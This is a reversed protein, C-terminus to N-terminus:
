FCNVYHLASCLLATPPLELNEVAEGREGSDPDVPFVKLASVYEVGPVSQIQSYLESVFLDRGFPWGEGDSGGHLPHIYGHLKEEVARQVEDATEGRRVKISTEVSCWVYDAESVLLASALLRRDDLYERVQELLEQSVSLDNLTVRHNAAPIAPVLLLQIVGPPPGNDDDVEQTQVCKVRGVFSSAEKALFEFDEATVARDRTRLIQSGRLKTNEIDEPDLGGTAPKRNTVAAVYPISSKLITLTDHGVNGVPGGGHRYTSLRVQSGPVPVAGYRVEDGLPSRIVPGFQIEGSAPDCVFHKDEFGSDYFDAVQEWVEWGQDDERQVELTEEPGLPLMPLQSVPMSQGPKGDSSGLLEGHVWETHSAVTSGGITESVTSRLLPSADYAGQWESSDTVTCKIWFGERSDLIRGGATRPIHLVVQGATNLGLTGDSELYELNDSGRKFSVWDMLLTDWYEWQLPPNAPNVGTAAAEECDLTISVVMGRLDTSYGLYFSNGPRPVNEFLPFSMTQGATPAEGGLTLAEWERLLPLRDDYRAGDGTVLFYTLEPPVVTLDEDTTFIIAEQTETRVTAVETGEPIM